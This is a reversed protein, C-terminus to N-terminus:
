LEVEGNGSFVGAGVLDGVLAAELATPRGRRPTLSSPRVRVATLDDTSLGLPRPRASALPRTHRHAPKADIENPPPGTSARDSCVQRVRGDRAAVYPVSKPHCGSATIVTVQKFLLPSTNGEGDCEDHYRASSRGSHAALISGGRRQHRQGGSRVTGTGPSWHAIVHGALGDTPEAAPRFM